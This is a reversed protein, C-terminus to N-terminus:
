AIKLSALKTKLRKEYENILKTETNGGFKLRAGGLVTPIQRIVEPSLSLGSPSRWYVMVGSPCLIKCAKWNKAVFVAFEGHALADRKAKSQLILNARDFGMGMPIDYFVHLVQM